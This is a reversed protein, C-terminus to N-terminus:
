KTMRRAYMADIAEALGREYCLRHLVVWEDLDNYFKSVFVEVYELDPDDEDIPKQCAYCIVPQDAV